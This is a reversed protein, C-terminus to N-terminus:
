IKQAKLGFVREMRDLATQVYEPDRDMCVSKRKSQEAAVALTGSGMFPDYVTDGIDTTNLILHRILPVPKQSPHLPNRAPKPFFLLSRDKSKRFYHTKFWGVAILEHQILFDKRGMVPASKAWILMQSFKLGAQEMGQRLTPFTPDCGFVYFSNKAMLHPLVPAIWERTFQAYESEKLDDNLINKQVSLKVLGAKSEVLNVGYPVDSIVARVKVGKLLRDVLAADQADGCAIVHDGVKFADGYNISSKPKTAPSNSM